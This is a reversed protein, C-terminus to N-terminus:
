YLILGAIGGAIIVLIPNVKKWLSVVFATAFLMWSKWDPFNEPRGIYLQRGDDLRRFITFDSLTDYEHDFIRDGCIAVLYPDFRPDACYNQPSMSTLSYGAKTDYFTEFDLAIAKSDEFM